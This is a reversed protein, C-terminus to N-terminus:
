VSVVGSILVKHIAGALTATFKVDPLIRFAKNTTSIDVVLPVTVLPAPSNSLIGRDVARKLSGKVENMIISVGADTFPIKSAGALAGFVAKSMDDKLWDLGRTTDIYGGDSTTGNATISVGAVSVYFNANRAVLNVRQTPTLSTVAVGALRKFMWTESGPERPLCNGAWAAAAFAAPNQHYMGAVRSYALASLEDLLGQTGDSVVTIADTENTDFVYIKTGTGQIYAAAAEVYDTSNFATLLCYWADSENSIALLDTAVGPDAHDQTIEWDAPDIELSFWNGPADATVILTSSGSATYNAGTVANLVTIMGAVIEAATASGDSLYTVTTNTVGEGKVIISYTHSNQVIPILTYSQTPPLACRGIMMSTPAPSQSFVATAARYEPSDLAFDAAVDSTSGYTRTREVWGATASLFLPVGFGARQVGVSDQTITLTVYNSLPDSM